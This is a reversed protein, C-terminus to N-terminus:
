VLSDAFDYLTRFEDPIKVTQLGVAKGFEVDQQKDGVMWSNALDVTPFYTAVTNWMGTAPKRCKCGTEPTHPCVCTLRPWIEVDMYSNAEQSAREMLSAYDSFSFLGRGIGSQNTVIVTTYDKQKLLLLADLAKDCWCWEDWASVYGHDVNIVGDRDLLVLRM